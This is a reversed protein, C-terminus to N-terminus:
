TTIVRLAAQRAEGVLTSTPHTRPHLVPCDETMSVGVTLLAGQAQAGWFVGVGHMSIM